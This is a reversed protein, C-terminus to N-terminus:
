DWQSMSFAQELGEEELKIWKKKVHFLITTSEYKANVLYGKKGLM